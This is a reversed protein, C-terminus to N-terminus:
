RVISVKMKVLVKRVTVHSISDVIGNETVKEALLRLTWRSRDGPPQESCLKLIQEEVESNIKTDYKKRTKVRGLAVYVGDEIYKRKVREVTRQGINLAKSIGLNTIKQSDESEDCNLLIFAARFTQASHSGKHIIGNLEDIEEKTLKIKYRM